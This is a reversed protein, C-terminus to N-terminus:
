RPPPDTRNILESAFERGSRFSRGITSNYLYDGCFRPPLAHFRQLATTSGVRRSCLGITNPYLIRDLVAATDLVPVGRCVEAWAADLIQDDSQGDANKRFAGKLEGHM